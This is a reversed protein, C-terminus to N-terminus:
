PHGPAPARPAPSQPATAAPLGSAQAGGRRGSIAGAVGEAIVRQCHDSLARRSAFQRLTVPPHLDVEVTANGLGLMAWLHPMLTMGGYWAFMPRLARGLPVGDLRTYAISVPQVTIPRGEIEIAAVSFLASKFPLVRNGDDSTGEPFLILNDGAELRRRMEDRQAPVERRADRDIFVTRQLKALLGFLPWGAVERKAVFSGKISAGLVIIDLYSSHNSVFLTPGNAAMRGRTEVRLGVIRVCGRHYRVSLTASLPRNLAAAAAQVPGVLLTWGLYLALRRLARLPSGM